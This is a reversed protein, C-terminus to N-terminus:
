VKRRAANWNRELNAILAPSFHCYAQERAYVAMYRRFLDLPEAAVRLARRNGAASVIGSSTFDAVTREVAEDMDEPPVVLDCVMRGAPSDCDLRLGSLIAQRAIRDGTFRAMRLNAAGPIIGEKRAPLTMYADSAGIIYDMVLLLQCGGGIAFADVAAIWPKEITGGAVEDPDADPRAVGRFFKNVVGLDRTLYWLFPIRGQYLHTLNIGADFVRRGRWKAHEVPAGRLVAIESAPDLTAVDVACELAELTTGDEANLFRPNRMTVHAAKGRREVLATGLDLTGTRAFEAAHARAEPRPLLMAHCLHAGARPDALVAALFLGQDVECGDKDKQPGDERAVEERTPVLGPAAHAATYALEELRLFRTHDQTLARYISAAHAGAFKERAARCAALLFAAAEAETATRKPKPPLRSLHESGERWFRAFADGDRARDGTVAPAAEAWARPQPPAGTV